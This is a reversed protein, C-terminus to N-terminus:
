QAEDAVTLSLEDRIHFKNESAAKWAPDHALKARVRTKVADREALAADSGYELLLMANWPRGGPYRAMAIDYHALIGADIWGKLQPITYGDLYKLYADDEVLYRYPIALFVPHNAGEVAAGDRVMEIPTSEIATTLALDKATLAAPTTRALASWRTEGDRGAFVLVALANWGASDVDRSFLVHFGSLVGQKSLARLRPLTDNTMAKRFPLWNGPTTHYAIVLAPQPASAAHALAPSAAVLLAGIVWRALNSIWM